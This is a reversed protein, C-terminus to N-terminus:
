REYKTGAWNFASIACCSMCRLKEEGDKVYQEFYNITREMDVTKCPANQPISIKGLYLDNLKYDDYDVYCGNFYDTAEKGSKMYIKEGETFIIKAFKEPNSITDNHFYYSYMDYYYDKNDFEDYRKNAGITFADGCHTTVVLLEKETDIAKDIDKNLIFVVRGDRTFYCSYENM